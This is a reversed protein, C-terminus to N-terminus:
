FEGTIGMHYSHFADTLGDKLMTDMLEKNGFKVGERMHMAHLSQSMSEQGGAVVVSAEGALIAQQGLMVSSYPLLYVCIARGDTVSDV